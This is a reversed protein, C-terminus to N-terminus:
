PMIDLQGAPTKRASLATFGETKNSLLQQILYICRVGIVYMWSVQVMKKGSVNTMWTEQVFLASCHLMQLLFMRLNEHCVIMFNNHLDVKALKDLLNVTHIDNANPLYKKCKNIHNNFIYM